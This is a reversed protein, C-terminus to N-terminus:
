KTLTQSKIFDVSKRILSELINLEIHELKQVYLCSKGTKHKGLNNLLPENELGALLYISINKSRPSFGTIFWEGSHGSANKYQYKGFGIMSGSWVVAKEQTINEMMELLVLCDQRMVTDDIDMILKKASKNTSTTKLKSM